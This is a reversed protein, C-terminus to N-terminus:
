FDCYLYAYMLCPAGLLPQLLEQLITCYLASIEVFGESLYYAKILCAAANASQGGSRLLAASQILLDHARAMVCARSSRAACDLQSAMAFPDREASSYKLGDGTEPVSSCHFVPSPRFALTTM